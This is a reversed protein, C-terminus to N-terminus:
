LKDGQDEWPFIVWRSDNLIKGCVENDRISDIKYRKLLFIKLCNMEMLCSEVLDITKGTDYIEDVLLYKKKPDLTPVKHSIIRKDILPFINIPKINLKYSLMTAPIIGGNGIAIIEYDELSSSIIKTQLEISIKTIYISVDSWSLIIEKATYNL